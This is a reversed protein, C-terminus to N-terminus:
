YKVSHERFVRKIDDYALYSIALVLGMLRWEYNFIIPVLVIFLLPIYSLLKLKVLKPLAKFWKYKQVLSCKVM